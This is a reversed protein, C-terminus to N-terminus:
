IELVLNWYEIVWVPKSNQIKTMTIQKSNTIQFKESFYIVKRIQDFQQSKLATAASTLFGTRWSQDSISPEAQGSYFSIGRYDLSVRRQSFCRALKSIRTTVM